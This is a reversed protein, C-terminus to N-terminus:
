FWAHYLRIHLAHRPRALKGWLPIFRRRHREFTVGFLSFCLAEEAGFKGLCIPRGDNPDYHVELCSELLEATGSEEATSRRCLTVIGHDSRSVSYWGVRPHDEDPTAGGLISAKANFDSRAPLQLAYQVVASLDDVVSARTDEAFLREFVPLIDLKSPAGSPM